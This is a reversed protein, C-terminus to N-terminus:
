FNLSIGANYSKLGPYGTTTEPDIDYNKQLSSWSFPNVASVYIRLGQLRIKRLLGAPLKYGLEINRLRLFDGKKMWFTSARYNNDNGKTTLRPYNATARTDIGQSPFYAWANGANPFVNANNVFALTQSTAATLLNISNGAAGQFLAMLDFGKFSVGANFAYTLTPFNPDGIKTIDNQDVKNNNDLDKYKIDGPQVAGFGPVPIGAKLVGNAEFDTIDYFGDAILGMPTGIAMGTTKNFENVTPVEAQYDITNKAYSVLGGINFNVAGIKETYNAGLEFGQNTVKGINAYPLAAGYLASLFNDQTVIGSRKDLFVDATLAIKNFLGLDFGAEYKMSKEAFIAPNAAYSPVIGGNGTLSNNGTYYTGNSVFYQQYLFRGGFTQDNGSQGASARIKLATIAKNGKLFAENSVVWGAAVAPYFGWRNGKAYNDSGSWGFAVDLIYRSDYAYNLRGGINHFHYFINNGTNQGATNQGQDTTYDSGWYNVAASIAHVGFTRDYGATLNAQKWDYQNVPTTGNSIIDTTNDTTAKVGNFFRAYTATKSANTRTWTNFSVAENLYLGPTIFDLRQKLNFNAQLTRDHTSNWGLANLSAIPNNPFLTTGSWNGTTADKVPYINSPYNAMNRWLTPGDFNPYRRDEIRGGLDVKAEFIKFFKFDLNTRINFRRITANSQTANTPVDYLGGQNMYDLVLGYKTNNDGGSLMVNADTYLSSKKLAQDYWDVNTGTGNKYADLQADTYQPTWNLQGGNIAYNDNSIAQNYLRAYDYSGYPKAINIGQQLGTVVQAQVKPKSATGRKTVIWLVGNAGKMGFTALSVPDKLVSISEIEVPSLYQFYSSTVQFGDVYIILSPNDYSARGRIFLAANDYGPEGSGQRVTLGLLRGYMTNTINAVPTQSLTAGSVSSVSLISKEKEINLLPGAQYKAPNYEVKVESSDTTAQASAAMPHCFFGYLLFLSGPLRYKFLNM